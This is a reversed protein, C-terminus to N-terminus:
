VAREEESEPEPLSEVWVPVLGSEELFCELERCWYREVVFAKIGQVIGVFKNFYYIKGKEIRCANFITM